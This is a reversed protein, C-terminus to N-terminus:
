TPVDTEFTVTNDLTLNYSSTGSDAISTGSGEEFRYWSTPATLGNDNLNNPVGSNYLTAVDNRLDSNSYIAAEDLLGVFPLRSGLSINRAGIYLAGGSTALATANQADSSTADVGNIFIKGKNGSTLGYDLCVLIHTWVNLTISANATRTDRTGTRFIIYRSSHFVVRFQETSGNDEVSAILSTTASTPKIWISFTMQTDGDLESYTTSGVAETDIGDYQTSYTNSFPPTGGTGTLNTEPSWSSYHIKGWDITNSM